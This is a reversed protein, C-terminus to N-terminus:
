QEDRTAPRDPESERRELEAVRHRLSELEDALQALYDLVEVQAFGRAVVSFRRRVVDRPEISNTM